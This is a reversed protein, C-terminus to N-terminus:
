REDETALLEALLEALRCAANDHKTNSRAQMYPTQWPAPRTLSLYRQYWRGMASGLHVRQLTEPAAEM